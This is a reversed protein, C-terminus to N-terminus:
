DLHPLVAKDIIRMDIHWDPHKVNEFTMLKLKGQKDLAKLGISDDSYIERERMDDVTENQNFFGFHASQWPSIVQLIYLPYPIFCSFLHLIKNTIYFIFYFLYGM